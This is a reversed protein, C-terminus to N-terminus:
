ELIKAELYQHILTQYGLGIAKAKAKYMRLVTPDIFMSLRVKRNPNLPRGRGRKKPNTVRTLQKM